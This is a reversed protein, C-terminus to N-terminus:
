GGYNLDVVRPKHSLRFQKCDNGWGIATRDTATHSYILSHHPQTQESLGMTLWDSVLCPWIHWQFKVWRSEFETKVLVEWHIAPM